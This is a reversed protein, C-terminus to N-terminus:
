PFRYLPHRCLLGTPHDFHLLFPKISRFFTNCILCYNTPYIIYNLGLLSSDPQSRINLIHLRQQLPATPVLSSSLTYLLTSQYYSHPKSFRILNSSTSPSSDFRPRLPLSIFFLLDLLSHKSLGQKSQTLDFSTSADIRYVRLPPPASAVLISDM